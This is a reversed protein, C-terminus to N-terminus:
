ALFSKGLPIVEVKGLIGLIGFFVGEVDDLMDEGPGSEAETKFLDLLKSSISPPRSLLGFVTLVGIILFLVAASRSPICFLELVEDNGLLLLEDDDDLLDKLM